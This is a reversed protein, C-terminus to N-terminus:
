RPRTTNSNTNSKTNSNTNSNTNSKTNNNTNSGTQGKSNTLTKEFAPKEPAHYLLISLEQLADIKATQKIYITQPATASGVRVDVVEGIKLGAPYIGDQGTTLVTDGVNVTETGPVYRMELLGKGGMGRVSGIANSVGVEGIIAGLASKDDSLLQVQATVASIGVVRGVLGEGTVVPMSLDVGSLSGRNITVSDFWASPDRGIVQAPLPKYPTQNKLDLLTRLRENEALIDQKAAITTELEAVKQKLAENESVATRMSALDNFVSFGSGGVSTVLQQVPVVVAQVWSRVVRQKSDQDRADYAMLGFNVLLLAILLWPTRQLKEKETLTVM